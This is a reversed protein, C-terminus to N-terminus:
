EGEGIAADVAPRFLGAVGLLYTMSDEVAGYGVGIIGKRAVLVVDWGPSILDCRLRVGERLRRKVRNRYVAKGIRKSVSFGFRSTPLGNPCKCLVLMRNSWCRGEAHVTHFDVSRTLRHKKPLM